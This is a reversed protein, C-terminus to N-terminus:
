CFFDEEKKPLSLFFNMPSSFSLWSFFYDETTKFTSFCFDITIFMDVPPRSMSFMGASHSSINSFMPSPLSSMFLASIICYTSSSAM